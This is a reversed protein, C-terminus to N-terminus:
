QKSRDLREFLTKTDHVDGTRCAEYARLASRSLAALREPPTRAHMESKLTERYRKYAEDCDLNGQASVAPAMLGLAAVGSLAARLM